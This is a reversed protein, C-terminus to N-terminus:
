VKNLTDYLSTGLLTESFFVVKNACNEPWNQMDLQAGSSTISLENNQHGIQSHTIEVQDPKRSSFAYHEVVTEPKDFPFVYHEATNADINAITITGGNIAVHYSNGNKIFFYNNQSSVYNVGNAYLFKKIIESYIDVKTQFVFNKM